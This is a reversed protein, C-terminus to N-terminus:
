HTANPKAKPNSEQKTDPKAEQDIKKEVLAAENAEPLELL